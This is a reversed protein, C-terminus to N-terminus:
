PTGQLPPSAASVDPAAAPPPPRLVVPEPEPRPSAADTQADAPEADPKRAQEVQETLAEDDPAPKPASGGYKAAFSDYRAVMRQQVNGGWQKEFEDLVAMAKDPAFIYTMVDRAIPYAAGSGGGHEIAVACAYKPKDFPAFAIFHGHDRYKWAGSKGNAVNLGVVQATGTKGAMLVNEVPLKARGATGRGNVVESMAAHIYDLHDQRFGMSRPLPAKRDLLLRPMVERGSAIRSAMVAQQLPNVLMYGQGITANVTDYLAWEKQYKRMKWAPDPVTGYSQGAYPMPFEQGLGLRRAMTAIVDMGLQQAFHYFYVDCSQYIGKAMDVTGHGRRQWCHFVRNGVRLGGSCSVTANPDLGAELFAMAVMPKVTSGPPYLGRLVKNRLPVHDDESLMKWEIRGIGDSFSNPDFSPMSAMALVDGTECDMVVVSGSELGIRRAAYDQLGANITLQIPKGPVDERTGLDRVIRGSATAEVRRAGPVGRLRTEFHKELGDKGIKFGPTILLPNREKEYDEASAAGVYGVLHGVAAGTPYFRSYGRQPIVGPLEPLRVSVAAFKDWDLSSAVEVPQFGRAKDLKDRIDRVRDQPLDLLAALTTMTRDPDGVRDPILDVRFDARNAALANGFRDLVWGRRPPILTLNVRNSESAAKYKENQTVALYGLRTALLVGVGAQLAGMVFTRREFRNTLIASTMPLRSNLTM